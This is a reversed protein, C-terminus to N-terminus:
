WELECLLFIAHANGVCRFEGTALRCRADAVPERQEITRAACGAGILSAAHSAHLTRPAVLGGADFRVADVNRAGCAGVLLRAHERGLGAARERATAREGAAIDDHAARATGDVHRDGPASTASM